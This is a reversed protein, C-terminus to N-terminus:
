RQDVGLARGDDEWVTGEWPNATSLPSNQEEIGAIIERLPALEEEGVLEFERAFLRWHNFSCDVHRAVGGARIVDLHHLYVHAYACLFRQHLRRMEAFFTAPFASGDKPVIAPDTLLSHSWNVLREMYEPASLPPEAAHQGGAQAWDHSVGPASCMRPCSQHSCGEGVLMCVLMRLEDWLDLSKSAVWVERRIGPPRRVLRYLGNLSPLKGGDGAAHSGPAPEAPADLSAGAGWTGHEGGGASRILDVGLLVTDASAPGHWDRRPQDAMCTGGLTPRLGVPPTADRGGEAPGVAAVSLELRPPDDSLVVDAM